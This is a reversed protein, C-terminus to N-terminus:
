PEFLCGQCKASLDRITNMLAGKKCYLWCLPRLNNDYDPTTGVRPRQRTQKSEEWCRSVTLWVTLLSIVPLNQRPLTSIDGRHLKKERKHMEHLSVFFGIWVRLYTMELRRRLNWTFRCLMVIFSMVREAHALVGSVSCFFCGPNMPNQLLTDM